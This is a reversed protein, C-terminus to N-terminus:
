DTLSELKAKINETCQGWITSFLKLLNERYQEERLLYRTVMKEFM